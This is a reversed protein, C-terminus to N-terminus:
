VASRRRRPGSRRRRGRQELDQEVPDAVVRAVSQRLLEGLRKAPAGRSCGPAGWRLPDGDDAGAHGPQGRGVLQALGPVVDVEELRAVVGAAVGVGDRDLGVGPRHSTSM